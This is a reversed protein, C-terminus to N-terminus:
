KGPFAAGILALVIFMGAVAFLLGMCGSEAGYIAKKVPAEEVVAQEAARNGSRLTFVMVGFLVIVIAIIM